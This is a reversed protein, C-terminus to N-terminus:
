GETLLLYFTMVSMQPTNECLDLLAPLISMMIDDDFPFMKRTVPWRHASNVSGRHIGRAFALSASSQHERHDAGSYVTSYVTTLSTVQSAIAGMIVDSYHYRSTWRWRDSMRVTRDSCPTHAGFSDNTMYYTPALCNAGNGSYGFDISIRRFMFTVLTDESHYWSTCFPSSWM